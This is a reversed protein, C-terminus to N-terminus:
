VPAAYREVGAQGCVVIRDDNAHRPNYNAPKDSDGHNLWGHTIRAKVLFAANRQVNQVYFMARLSCVLFRDLDREANSGLQILPSDLGGGERIMMLYEENVNFIM